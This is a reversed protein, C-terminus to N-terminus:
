SCDKKYRMKTAFTTTLNRDRVIQCSVRPCPDTTNAQWGVLGRNGAKQRTCSIVLASDLDTYKLVFITNVTAFVVPITNM